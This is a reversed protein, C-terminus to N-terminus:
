FVSKFEVWVSTQRGNQRYRKHRHLARWYLGKLVCDSSQEADNVCKDNYYFDLQIATLTKRQYLSITIDCTPLAHMYSLVGNNSTSIHKKYFRDLISVAIRVYIRTRIPLCARVCPRVCARAWARVCARVRGCVCM